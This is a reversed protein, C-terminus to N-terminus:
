KAATTPSLLSLLGAHWPEWYEMDFFYHTCDGDSGQAHASVLPMTADFLKMVHSVEGTQNLVSHLAENRWEAIPNYFFNGAEDFVESGMCTHEGQYLGSPPHNGSSFHQAQTERLICRGGEKKCHAMVSKLLSILADRRPAQEEFNFHVGHNIVFLDAYQEHQLHFSIIKLQEELTARNVIYAIVEGDVEPVRLRSFGAYGSPTVLDGIIGGNFARLKSAQELVSSSNKPLWGDWQAGSYCALSEFWQRTLSDGMLVVRSRSLAKVLQSPSLGNAGPGVYHPIGTQNVCGKYMKESPWHCCNPLSMNDERLGTSWWETRAHKGEGRYNEVQKM